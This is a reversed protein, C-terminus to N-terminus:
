QLTRKTPPVCCTKMKDLVSKPSVKFRDCFDKVIPADHAANTGTLRSMLVSWLDDNDLPSM